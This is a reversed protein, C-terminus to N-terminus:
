SVTSNYHYGITKFLQHFLAIPESFLVDESGADHLLSRIFHLDSVNITFPQLLEHRTSPHLTVRLLSHCLKLQNEENSLLNVPKNNQILQTLFIVSVNPNINDALGLNDILIQCSINLWRSATHTLAGAAEPLLPSQLLTSDSIRASVASSVDNWLSRLVDKIGHVLSPNATDNISAASSTGSLQDLQDDISRSINLICQLLRSLLRGCSSSTMIVDHFLPSILCQVDTCQEDVLMELGELITVMTVYRGEDDLNSVDNSLTQLHSKLKNGFSSSFSM